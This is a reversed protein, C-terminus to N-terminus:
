ALELKLQENFKLGCWMCAATGYPYASCMWPRHVYDKCLRTETDFHKCRYVNIEISRPQEDIDGEMAFIRTGSPIVMERIYPTDAHRPTLM